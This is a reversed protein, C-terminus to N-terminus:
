DLITWDDYTATPVQRHDLIKGLERALIRSCQDASRNMQTRIVQLCTLSNDETSRKLKEEGSDPVRATEEQLLEAVCFATDCM